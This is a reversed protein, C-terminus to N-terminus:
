GCLSINTPKVYPKENFYEPELSGLSLELKFFASCSGSNSFTKAWQSVMSNVVKKHYSLNKKLLLWKISCTSLLVRDNRGGGDPM